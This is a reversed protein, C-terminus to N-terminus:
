VRLVNINFPGAGKSGWDHKSDVRVLASPCLEAPPFRQLGPYNFHWHDDMEISPDPPQRPQKDVILISSWRGHGVATYRMRTNQTESLLAASHCLEHIMCHRAPAFCIRPSSGGYYLLQLEYKHKYTSLNPVVLISQFTWINNVILAGHHVQLSARVQLSNSGCAGSLEVLTPKVTHRLSYPPKLILVCTRNSLHSTSSLSALQLRIRYIM